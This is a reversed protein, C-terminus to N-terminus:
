TTDSVNGSIRCMSIDFNGWSKELHTSPKRVFREFIGYKSGLMVNFSM